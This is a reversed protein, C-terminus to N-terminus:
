NIAPPIGSAVELHYLPVLGAAGTKPSQSDTFMNLFTIFKILSTFSSSFFTAHDLRCSNNADVKTTIVTVKMIATKIPIISIAREFTNLIM